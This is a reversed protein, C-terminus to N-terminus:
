NDSLLFTPTQYKSDHVIKNHCPKWHMWLVCNYLDRLHINNQFNKGYFILQLTFGKPSSDNNFGKKISISVNDDMNDTTRLTM